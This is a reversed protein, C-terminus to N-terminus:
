ANLGIGQRLNDMATLHQVWNSDVSQLMIRREVERIVEPTVDEEIKDYYWRVHELLREEVVDVGMLELQEYDDFEAPPPLITSVESLMADIDWNEPRREGLHDQISASLERDLM